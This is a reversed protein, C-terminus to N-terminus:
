WLGPPRPCSGAKRHSNRCTHFGGHSGVCLGQVIEPILCFRPVAGLVNSTSLSSPAGEGEARVSMLPRSGSEKRRIFQASREVSDYGDGSELGLGFAAEQEWGWSCGKQYWRAPSLEHCLGSHCALM